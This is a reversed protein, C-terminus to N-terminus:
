RSDAPGVPQNASAPLVHDYVGATSAQGDSPSGNKLAKGASQRKPSQTTQALFNDIQAADKLRNFADAMAIRQKKEHIDDYLERKVTPDSMAVKVTDTYGECFLIVYSDNVQVIGSMKGPELSFAEDELAKVGGWKQIPPVHGQVSRSPDISYQEALRGFLEGSRDPHKNLEQQAISFVEQAKRLNSLVIVRCKVRPGYNAEFGRHMDDDTVKVDGCLKKLAVSPWVADRVYLDYSIHQEKTVTAIWAAVDAQGGATTKGMAVAARAIEADIDQQTVTIKKARLSQELLHRNITGELVEVGHREICEEALERITIRRDNVIAAIGPMERSKEPDGYVKQVVAQKQLAKFTDSGVKRLKSDRVLEALQDKVENRNAQVAPLRGESKFILYQNGVQVVPSIEGDRLNFVTQEVQPDGVHHHIPQILGNASASPDISWKRAMAPFSDPNAKAQAALRDAQQQTAVVILRTKVAEGYKSEFADEIEQQTPQIQDAAVKKLALMPWVIDDAYQQASIHREDQIMKIWQDTSIGFKKALRNIEETVESRTVSINRQQCYQVILYRNLMADLVEAGYHALCEQALEQRGITDGNVDALIQLQQRPQTAAQPAAGAAQPPSKADAPQPGHFSRIAVCVAVVSIAGLAVGLRSKWRGTRPTERAADKSSMAAGGLGVISDVIAM